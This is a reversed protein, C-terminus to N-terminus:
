VLDITAVLWNATNKERLLDIGIVLCLVAAGLLQPSSGKGLKNSRGLDLVVM